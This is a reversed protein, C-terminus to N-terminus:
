NQDIEPWSDRLRRWSEDLPEPMVRTMATTTTFNTDGAWRPLCHVHLHDPIGAGGARGLNLGVNMGDPQYAAQIAAVAWGVARWLEAGDTEGLDALDIAPRFPVVMLHGSTYPYANLIAFCSEGRWVIFTEEDPLGSELIREFLSGEGAPLQYLGAVYEHRWGAWIRDLDAM